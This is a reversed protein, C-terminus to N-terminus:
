SCAIRAPAARSTNRFRTRIWKRRTTSTASRSRALSDKEDLHPPSGQARASQVLSAAPVAALGVLANKLLTRRDYRCDSM